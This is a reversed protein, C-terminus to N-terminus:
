QDCVFILLDLITIPLPWSEINLFFLPSVNGGLPCENDLNVLSVDSGDAGNFFPDNSVAAESIITYATDGDEDGDNVGMVTVTQPQNWNEPTFVAATAGPADNVSFVVGEGPDSSTFGITVTDTPAVDLVVNFSTRTGWESTTLGSSPAVSIDTFEQGALSFALDFEFPGPDGEITLDCTTIRAGWQNVCGSGIFPETQMWASEFGVTQGTNPAASSERWGWQGETLIPMNTQVVLWYIGSPLEVGGGPLTIVFDGSFLDAYPLEEARYVVANGQTLDTTNPLDTGPDNDLIYINISDAPGPDLVTDSFYSGDVTITQIRWRSVEDPITFDDASSTTFDNFKPDTFHQSTITTSIPAIGNLTSFLISAGGDLYTALPGDSQGAARFPSTQEQAALPLLLGLLFVSFTQKQM